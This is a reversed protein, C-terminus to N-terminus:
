VLVSGSFCDQGGEMGKSVSVRQVDNVLALRIFWTPSLVSKFVESHKLYVMEAIESIKLVM